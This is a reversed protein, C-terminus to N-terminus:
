MKTPGPLHPCFHLLYTFLVSHQFNTMFIYFVCPYLYFEYLIHISSHPLGFQMITKLFNMKVDIEQFCPFKHIENKQNEM